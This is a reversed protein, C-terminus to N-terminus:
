GGWWRENDVDRHEAEIREQEARDEDARRAVEAPDEGLSAVARGRDLGVILYRLADLSHNDADLPEEKQKDPDYSYLGAERVLDTCTSLVKLRGGRIRATVRDIGTLRPNQGRHVCPIVSHGAGRLEATQEAGAPDAWWEVGRPLFRSHTSVPAGAAYRIGTVWLVDDHDLRGWVACFPNNFGYDIGGFPRGEPEDGAPVVCDVFGPYVLGERRMVWDGDLLRAREVPPLAKLNALYGPDKALLIKNDHVSAAIFTVSKADPTLRDVWAIKGGDRVFWRLEGSRAPRPYERDVWPALFRKVWSAADPNTSARLYPRVGCTSRNRSFMYFFQHETFHTLEDFEILGIQSGQWDYVSDAHQLHRFGVNAGSPWRWDLSGLSAVAGTRPYLGMAEDWRGGENTIQPCTRRFIVAGFGPVRVHRLPEALLAWSKGGGAAGGYIAM